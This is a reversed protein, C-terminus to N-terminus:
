LGRLWAASTRNRPGLRPPLKRTSSPRKGYQRSMPPVGEPVILPGRPRAMSEGVCYSRRKRAGNIM